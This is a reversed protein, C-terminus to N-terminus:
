LKVFKRKGQNEGLQYFYLGSPFESVDLSERWDGTAIEEAAKEFILQGQQNFIRIQPLSPHDFHAQFHIKDRVPNPFSYVKSLNQAPDIGVSPAFDFEWVDGLYTGTSSNGGFIVMKDEQPLYIAVHGVRRDPLNGGVQWETWSQNDLDFSWLDNRAGNFQNQNFRNGGFMVVEGNGRYVLSSFHRGDPVNQPSLNTWAYTDLNCSWIDAFNGSGQGAYIVLERRDNILTSNFLCREPPFTSQTVENWSDNQPDYTWTDHFRGSSTFGAFTVMQGTQADFETIGGYRQLPIGSTNGNASLNHWTSDSFHFAWVDNFLGGGQGSFVYMRDQAADYVANQTHRPAPLDATNNPIQSWTYTNLDLNWLDNERGAASTGGFLVMSNRQPIYIASSNARPSIGGQSAVANWNQAFIGPGSILLGIFLLLHIKM